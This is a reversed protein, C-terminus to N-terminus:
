CAGCIRCRGVRCRPTFEGRRAREGDERLFKRDVGTDIVNWPLPEDYSRKRYVVRHIEDEHERLAGRWNGGTEHIRMLIDGMEAGGRALAAQLVSAQPSEVILSAFKGLERLAKIRQRLINPSEMTEWQFPTQPKPIFPNVSVTLKRVGLRKVDSVEDIIDGVAEDGEGPLGIIYYLKVEDMGFRLSRSVADLLADRTIRKNIRRQVEEEATEPALTITRHGSRAMLGLLSDPLSDARLSSASVELSNVSSLYECLEDIHPYDSIAAGVLGIRPALKIGESIYSILDNLEVCRYPRYVFGAVCFRCGWLCGRSIEILFMDKLASEPTVIVSSTNGLTPCRNVAVRRSIGPVYVNPLESLRPLTERKPLRAMLVAVVDEVIGEGEGVVFADVFPVIPMFNFFTCVGGVIIPPFSGDRDRSRPPIGALDLISLINVYDMEFSVSIMISDFRYLPSQSEMSLPAMPSPPLFFRECSVGELNNLIRYVKQFGLNSVGVPYENPYILAVSFDASKFITGRERSLLSKIWRVYEWNEM